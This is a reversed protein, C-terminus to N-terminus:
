SRFVCIEQQLRYIAFTVFIISCSDVRSAVKRLHYIALKHQSHYIFIIFCPGTKKVYSSLNDSNKIECGVDGRQANEDGGNKDM